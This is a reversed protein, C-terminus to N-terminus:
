IAPRLSAWPEETSVDVIGPEAARAPSLMALFVLKEDFPNYTGHVEGMPIFAMEGPLLIRSEGGVWQEARGSIVFIIEERTPHKHFPHSRRPEMNARVLMLHENNVIDSRCLWEELTWPSQVRVADALQVFRRSAISSDM